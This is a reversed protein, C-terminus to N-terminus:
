SIQDRNEQNENQDQIFGFQAQVVYWLITALTQPTRPSEKFMGIYWLYIILWPNDRFIDEM